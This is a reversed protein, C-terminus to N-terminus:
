RIIIHFIREPTDLMGHIFGLIPGIVKEILPMRCPRPHGIRIPDHRLNGPHPTHPHVNTTDYFSRIISKTSTVGALEIRSVLSPVSFMIHPFWNSM